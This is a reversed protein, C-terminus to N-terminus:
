DVPPEAPLPRNISLGRFGRRGAGAPRAREYGRAQLAQAFARENGVYEGSREAWGRWNKFLDDTAEWAKPDPTTNEELWLGLADEQALYDATAEVVARPPALGMRHWAQAGDIAWRLIAPWEQRLKEGLQKDRREEPITVAFPILHFRRRIAEDVSRFRPRHNGSIMLKFTPAVDFFDGRMFRAKFTEGGTLTKIRAEDWRRGAQTESALVLRAGRLLALETPHADFRREIFMDMPATVAYDGLIGGMTATFVSKGNAGTGYLFFLVHERVHGTACYGAVRQVYALMAEDGEFVENLFSIWRPCPTGPAAPRVATMKTLYDDARPAWTEGSDLRIPM